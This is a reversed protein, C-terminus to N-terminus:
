RPFVQQDNTRDPFTQNQQQREAPRSKEMRRDKAMEKSTSKMKQGVPSKQQISKQSEKRREIVVKKGKERVGYIKPKPGIREPSPGTNGVSMKPNRRVEKRIKESRPQSVTREPRVEAGGERVIPNERIKKQQKREIKWPLSSSAPRNEVHEYVKGQRIRGSPERLPIGGPVAMLRDHHVPLRKVRGHDFDSRKVVVMSHHVDRNRYHHTYEVDRYRPGGWGGWWPAHTKRWWPILPEGWGLAMWGVVPSSSGSEDQDNFFVVLAPAYAPGEVRPGPAWAWRGQVSVWRGYHYPAWGWPADDVWTWGYEPDNIWSGTSYPSWDASVDTPIWVPGYEHVNEWVGAKDLDKLGYIDISVYRSSAADLLSDTRSLCWRDWSDLQRAQSFGVRPFDDGELDIEQNGTIMYERGQVPVVAAQGERHVSFVTSKGGVDLRYYGSREITFAANPTDIVVNTDSDITRLDLSVHGQNV